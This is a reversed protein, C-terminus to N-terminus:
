CFISGLRHFPLPFYHFLLNRVPHPFLKEWDLEGSGHTRIVTSGMSHLYESTDAGTDQPHDGGEPTFPPVGQCQPGRDVGYVFQMPPAAAASVDVSVTKITSSPSLQQVTLRTEASSGVRGLAFLLLTAMLRM